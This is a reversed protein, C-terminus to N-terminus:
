ASEEVGIRVSLEHSEGPQLHIAAHRVNGSEVCVFQPWEDFDLDSMAAAKDPGPNWVITRNASSQDLTIRRGLVPDAIVATDGFAYVRDVEGDFQIPGIQTREEGSVQDFYDAGSLGHVEIRRVDGVRFYTHLALEFVLPGRTDTNRVSVHLELDRGFVQRYDVTFNNRRPDVHDLEPILTEDFHWDLTTVGDQERAGALQWESLRAFGHAPRKRGSRGPGFWPFCVPIGGRIAKGPRYEARTSTFLVPDGAGDPRWDLVQAGHDVALFHGPAGDPNPVDGTCRGFERPTAEQREFMPCM